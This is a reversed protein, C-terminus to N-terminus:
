SIPLNLKLMNSQKNGKHTELLPSGAETKAEQAASSYQLLWGLRQHRWPFPKNILFM